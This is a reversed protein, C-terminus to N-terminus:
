PPRVRRSRIARCRDGTALSVMLAPLTDSSASGTPASMAREQHPPRGRRSRAAEGEVLLPPWQQHFLRLAAPDGRQADVVTEVAASQGCTSVKARSPRAANAKFGLWAHTAGEAVPPRQEAGVREGEAPGPGAAIGEHEVPHGATARPSISSWRRPRCASGGPSPLRGMRRASSRDPRPKPRLWAERRRGCPEASAAMISNIAPGSIPSMVLM